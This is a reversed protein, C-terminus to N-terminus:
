LRGKFEEGNMWREIVPASRSTAGNGAFAFYRRVWAKLTEETQNTNRLYVGVADSWKVDSIPGYIPAGSGPAGGYDGWPQLVHQMEPIQGLKQDAPLPYVPDRGSAMKYLMFAQNIPIWLRDSTSNRSDTIYAPTKENAKSKAISTFFSKWQDFNTLGFYEWATAALKWGETIAVTPLPTMYTKNGHALLNIQFCGFSYDGSNLIKPNWSGVNGERATIATFLAALEPYAITGVLLQFIEDQSLEGTNPVKYSKTYKSDLINGPTIGIGFGFDITSGPVTAPTAPPGTTFAGGPGTYVGSRAPSFAIHLHNRHGSDPFWRVHKLNPFRLKIAADDADKDETVGYETKLRDDFGLLDPILHMPFSNIATLFMDMFGRFTDLNLSELDYFTGSLSTGNMLDFARGFGHASLTNGETMSNVGPSDSWRTMGFGGSFKIKTSLLIFFEIIAPCIYATQPAADIIEPPIIIINSSQDVLPFETGGDKTGLDRLGNPIDFPWGSKLYSSNGAYGINALVLAREAHWAREEVTSNNTLMVMRGGASPNGSDTNPPTDGHNETGAEKSQTEFSVYNDYLNGEAEEIFSSGGQKGVISEALIRAFAAGGRLKATEKAGDANTYTGGEPDEIVLTSTSDFTSESGATILSNLSSGISKNYFTTAFKPSRYLVDGSIAESITRSTLTKGSVGNKGFTTNEVVIKGNPFNKSKPYYSDFIANTISKSNAMQSKDINVM